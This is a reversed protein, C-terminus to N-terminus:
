SFYLATDDDDANLLSARGIIYTKLLSIHDQFNISFLNLRYLIKFLCDFVGIEFFPNNEAEM